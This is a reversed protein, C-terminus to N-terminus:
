YVEGSFEGPGRVGESNGQRVEVVGSHAAAEPRRAGHPVFPSLFSSLPEYIINAINDCRNRQGGVAEGM